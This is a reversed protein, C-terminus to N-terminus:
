VNRTKIKLLIKLTIATLVLETLIGINFFYFLNGAGALAWNLLHYLSAGIIGVLLVSKTTLNLFTTKGLVIFIAAIILLILSNIGFDSFSNVGTLIGGFWAFIIARLNDKILALYLVLVLFLNLKIFSPNIFSIQIGALVILFIVVGIVSIIKKNGSNM